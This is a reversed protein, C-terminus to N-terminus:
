QEAMGAIIEDTIDLKNEYVVERNLSQLLKQPDEDNLPESNHRIVLDIRHSQAYAAIERAAVRYIKM